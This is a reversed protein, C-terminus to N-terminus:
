SPVSWLKLFQDDSVSALLKGDPSFVCGTITLGHAGDITDLVTSDKTSM